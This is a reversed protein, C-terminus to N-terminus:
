GEHVEIQTWGQNWIGRVHERFGTGTVDVTACYPSAAVLAVIGRENFAAQRVEDLAQEIRIRESNSCYPDLPSWESDLADEVATIAPHELVEADDTDSLPAMALAIARLHEDRADLQWDDLNIHYAEDLLREHYTSLVNKALSESDPCTGLIEISMTLAIACLDSITADDLADVMTDIPTYLWQALWEREDLAKEEDAAAAPWRHIAIVEPRVETHVGEECHPAYQYGIGPMGFYYPEYWPLSTAYFVPWVDLMCFSQAFEAPDPAVLMPNGTTVTTKAEDRNFPNTM